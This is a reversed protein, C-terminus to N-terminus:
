FLVLRISAAPSEASPHSVPSGMCEYDLLGEGLKEWKQNEIERLVKEVWQAEANGDTFDSFPVKKFQMLESKDLM